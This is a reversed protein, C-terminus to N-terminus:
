YISPFSRTKTCSKEHIMLQAKLYITEEKLQLLLERLHENEKSMREAKYALNDLWEKKRQRCKSAALRNRELNKARAEKEETEVGNHTELQNTSSGLKWKSDGSSIRTRKQANDKLPKPSSKQPASPIPETGDIHTPRKRKNNNSVNGELDTRSSNTIPVGLPYYPSSTFVPHSNRYANIQKTPDLPHILYYRGFKEYECMNPNYNNMM